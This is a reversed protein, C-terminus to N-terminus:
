KGEALSKHLSELLYTWGHKRMEPGDAGELYTGQHTCVVDTGSATPLLEITLVTISFVRGDLAMTYTSVFRQNPVVNHIVGDNTIVGSIPAGPGMEIEVHERGGARFDLEFKKITNNSEDPTFWRRKKAPDAFAAFVREPSHPYSREVTFTAHVTTPEM